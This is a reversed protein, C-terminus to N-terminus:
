ENCKDTECCHITERVNTPKPCTAACGWTIDSYRPVIYYWKKFCLNQGDPCNETTIGFISKSTVCTL